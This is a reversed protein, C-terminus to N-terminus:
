AIVELGRRRCEDVLSDNSVVSLIGTERGQAIEGTARSTVKGGAPRTSVKGGTMEARVKAVMPHSVKCVNALARDSWQSWEPDRLVERVANRRDENTRRLGHAENAALAALRAQRQTGELVEAEIVEMGAERAAETRHFGDAIWYTEGDKYLQVPPFTSGDQMAQAYESVIAAQTGNARVQTSDNRAIQELHIVETM